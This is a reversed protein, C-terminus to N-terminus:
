VKATPRVRLTDCRKLLEPNVQGGFKEFFSELHPMASWAGYVQDNELVIQAIENAEEPTFTAFELLAKSSAGAQDYTHSAKLSRTTCKKIAGKLEPYESAIGSLLEVCTSHFTVPHTGRLSVAQSVEMFGYPDVDVKIPAIVMGRGVAIGAEQDTWESEHFRKTLIPIFINCVVTLHRLIVKQWAASPRIDEHAVFASAGFREFVSKLEKAVEVDDHKHSLFVHIRDYSLRGVVPPQVAEREEFRELQDVRKEMAKYWAHRSDGPSIESLAATIDTRTYAEILGKDGTQLFKHFAAIIALTKDSAM